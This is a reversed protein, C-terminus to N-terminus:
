DLNENDVFKERDVLRDQYKSESFTNAINNPNDNFQQTKVFEDWARQTRKGWIGDVKGVIDGYGNDVLMQQIEAVDKNYRGRKKKTNSTNSGSVVIAPQVMELPRRILRPIRRYISNPNTWRGSAGGGGFSGGGYGGPSGGEQLRQISGGIRFKFTNAINDQNDNYQKRNVLRDQYNSESFTNAIDNQNDTYYEQKAIKNAKLGAQYADWARQTNKGWIGDAGYKGLMDGYGAGILMQQIKRVKPDRRRGTVVLEPLTPAIYLKNDQNDQDYTITGDHHIVAGTLSNGGLLKQIPGGIKFRNVVNKSLLRNDKIRRFNEM